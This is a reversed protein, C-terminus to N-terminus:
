KTLYNKFIWWSNDQWWKLRGMRSKDLGLGQYHEFRAKAAAWNFGKYDPAVFLHKGHIIFPNSQKPLV